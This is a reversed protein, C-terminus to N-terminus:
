TARVCGPRMAASIPRKLFVLTCCVGLDCDLSSARTTSTDMHRRKSLQHLSLVRHVEGVLRRFVVGVVPVRDRPNGSAAAGTIRVM